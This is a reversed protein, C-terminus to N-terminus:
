TRTSALSVQSTEQEAHERREWSKLAEYTAMSCANSINYAGTEKDISPVFALDDFNAEFHGPIGHGENGGVIVVKRNPNFDVDWLNKHKPTGRVMGTSLEENGPNRRRKEEDIGWLAVLQYKCSHFVSAVVGFDTPLGVVIKVKWGYRMCTSKRIVGKIFNNTHATDQGKQGLSSSYLLIRTFGCLFCNRLIAGINGEYVVDVLLISPCATMSISALNENVYEQWSMVHENCIMNMTSDEKQLHFVGNGAKAHKKNYQMMKKSKAELKRKRRALKIHASSNELKSGDPKKGISMVHHSDDVVFGIKRYFSMAGSNLKEVRLNVTQVGKEQSRQLVDQFLKTAIGKRRQGPAVFISIVWWYETGWWDSWEPSIGVFGVPEDGGKGGDLAAVIYFPKLGFDNGDTLCKLVGVRLQAENLKLGKETEYALDMQMQLMADIDKATGNRIRLM